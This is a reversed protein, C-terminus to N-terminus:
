ARIYSGTREDNGTFVRDGEFGEQVSEEFLMLGGVCGFFHQNVLHGLGLPEGLAGKAELVLAKRRM